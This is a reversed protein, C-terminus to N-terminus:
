WDGQQNAQDLAYGLLGARGLREPNIGMGEFGAAGRGLAYLGTGVARPSQPILLGALMPNQMLAAAGITGGMGLQGGLGRSTWSNMAQGSIAPLLSANGQDELIKALELRNGYNTNVNNRSLSQLKRIATDQAASKGLSLAREIERETRLATEYEAMTKAYDPSQKVITDKVANRVSTIARQAQTHAPSDPYLADLRQKLADLGMPTHMSPDARWNRVIKEMEQVKSLQDKGIKWQNGFKLSDVTDSLAKDIAGFKLQTTDTATSAINAKYNSSRTERMTQLAGKAEDLVETAPRQGTMSEFFARDGAKGAKYAQSINEPGVGTTLGLGQKGLAAAGRVGAEVATLPNTYRSVAGLATGARGPVMASGVGTVASVDAAFGVPDTQITNSINDLGGYRDKYFKGVADAAGTARLAADPNPDARDIMSRLPAPTINRLGGAAVDLVGKASEVPSTLTNYISGFFNAASGPVNSLTNAVFGKKGEQNTSGEWDKQSGGKLAMLGESSVKSLDGSKLALLDQDSLKSLDM